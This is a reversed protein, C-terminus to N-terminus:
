RRIGHRDAWSGSVLTPAVTGWRSVHCRAVSPLSEVAAALRATLVGLEAALAEPLDALDHHSRPSLLLLVPLGTRPFRTLRWSDNHWVLDADQEVAGPGTVRACHCEAPDEGDRPRETEALEAVRRTRAGDPVVFPFAEWASTTGEGTAALTGDGDLAAAVRAFWAEASEPAGPTASV